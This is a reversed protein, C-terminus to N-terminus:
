RFKQALNFKTLKLFTQVEVNFKQLRPDRLLREDTILLLAIRYSHLFIYTDGPIDVFAMWGKGLIEEFSISMRKVPM